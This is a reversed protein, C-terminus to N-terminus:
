LLENGPSALRCAEIERNMGVHETMGAAEVEGIITYVGSRQLSVEPMTGDLM